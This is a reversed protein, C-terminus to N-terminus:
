PTRAGDGPLVFTLEHKNHHLHMVRAGEIAAFAAAADHDTTGQFKLTCVFNRALGAARWREVLRLLRGPYCIVDSFLWDVPGISQPDLAFASEGRWEVGAMAMVEPDLPAKDVAVVRAGLRALVHTWGGPAAGLDVCRQGPQPWRGLRVLAEWLKLYARSPPGERDKVFAVEGNPFPASCRAAALLRDSALLTWSGLPATPAAAPFAVPRASVHPLREQILAARRHHLPAYVAWNRQIVRLAKAAEGISAIPREVCDRWINAAWAAPIAPMDSIFLRGHRARVPVGSRRLEEELQPEFGEAALYATTM